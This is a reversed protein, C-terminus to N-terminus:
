LNYLYFVIKFLSLAANETLSFLSKRPFNETFILLIILEYSNFSPDSALIKNNDTEFKSIEMVRTGSHNQNRM